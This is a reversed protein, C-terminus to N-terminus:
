AWAGERVTANGIVGLASALLFIGMWSIMGMDGFAQFVYCIVICISTLSAVATIPDDTQQYVRAGLFIAVVYYLWLCTFGILGTLMLLWLVSNHAIFRYNPMAEAISFAVSVENYPHGFGSGLIPAGGFTYILNYNEIDRTQNSANKTDTVSVLSRIPYFIASEGKAAIGVAVYLAIIPGAIFAMRLIRKRLNNNMVLFVGLLCMALSVYALRRHNVVLGLGLVPFFCAVTIIVRKLPRELIYAGLMVITTILLMSDEHTISYEVMLRQPKVIGYFFYIGDFCRLLACTLNLVGLRVWWTPTRFAHMYLAAMIPAWILQRTQYQTQTLDGGRGAGWVIWVFLAFGALALMQKLPRATQTGDPNDVKSGTLWRVTAVVVLLALVLEILHKSYVVRGLAGLPGEWRGDHPRSGPNHALISIATLAFLSHTLPAAILFYAGGIGLLPLLAVIVNGDSVALALVSLVVLAPALLLVRKSLKPLAFQQPVSTM